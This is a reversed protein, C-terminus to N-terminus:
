RAPKFNPNKRVLLVTYDDCVPDELYGHVLRVAAFGNAIQRSVTPDKRKGAVLEDYYDEARMTEKLAGYGSLMGYTFQGRLNLREVTQQRAEYLLRAIGRGRWQPHAGIDLGYLWEGEPEHTDLFGGAIVETFTRAHKEDLHYRITTTMGVVKDGDTVVFQGEPFISIHHLYHPARFLSNKALTPFVLEQLAELQAAHKAETSQVVLGDATKKLYPFGDKMSRNHKTKRRAFADTKGIRGAV